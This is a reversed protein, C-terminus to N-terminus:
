RREGDMQVFKYIVTWPSESLTGGAAAERLNFLGVKQGGQLHPLAPHRLLGPSIGRVHRVAGQASGVAVTLLLKGNGLQRVERLEGWVDQPWAGGEAAARARRYPACGPRFACRACTEPGPSALQNEAQEPTSACNAITANVKGLATLADALLAECAVRDFPVGEAEGQLPVLELRAPWRGTAAAFLAAYLQMQVIFGDKVVTPRGAATERISGSKYDRLTLGEPTELVHDIYGGVSGDGSAVWREFGTVAREQRERRQSAAAQAVALSREVARIRRVEFDAVASRLPVFHRELWSAQMTSETEAVLEDWRREIAAREAPAIHGKGAEDLLRHIATGLRAAPPLPLLVPNGGAAWVERLACQKMAEYRSPSIREVAALRLPQELIGPTM